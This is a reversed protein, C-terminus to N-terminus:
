ETRIKTPRIRIEVNYSATMEDASMDQLFKRYKSWYAEPISENGPKLTAEGRLILVNNGLGDVSQFTLAVRPNSHINRVRLSSPQSYVTIYEGDWLFWVPSPLPVGAPSVSTFWLIDEQQLRKEVRARTKPDLDLM